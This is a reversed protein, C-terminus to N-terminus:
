DNDFLLLWFLSVQFVNTKFNVLNANDKLYQGTNTIGKIYRAEIGCGPTMRYGIGGALSMEISSSGLPLKYNMIYQSVRINFQPGGNIFFGSQTKYKLLLPVSFYNQKVDLKYEGVPVKGGHRAFELELQIGLHRNIGFYTISGAHGFVNPQYGMLGNSYSSYNMGAKVGFGFYQAPLTHFLFIFVSLFVIRAM